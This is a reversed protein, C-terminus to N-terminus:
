RVVRVGGYVGIGTKEFGFPDEYHRDLLNDIRGFVTLNESVKYNAALNITNYGPAVTSVGGARPVDMWDGVWLVTTSLTLAGTPQWVASISTKDIPRRILELGTTADIAITRTYDTRIQFDNTIQASVFSEIGHIKAAAVNENIFTIPDPVILDKINNNFYTVGFLIRKQFLGQEFGFDYGRSEEPQLNPNAGFPGFIQDLSPAHFGTGYSAKFTTDTEKIVYSPALRWTDHGGFNENDDYRINSTLFLRDGFASHLEAYTGTNRNSGQAAFGFENFNAKETEQEVGMYLTQGPALALDSKWYYKIRDGAFINLPPTFALLPADPDFARRTVDTYAIGLHNNFKGDFLKWVADTLGYFEHNRSSTQDPNPFSPFSDDQTFHRAADTYRGVFNL